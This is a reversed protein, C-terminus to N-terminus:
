RCEPPAYKAPLTGMTINTFGRDTATQASDSACAWDISAHVLPNTLNNGGAYPTWVLTRGQADSPLSPSNAIQISIAGNAPNIHTSAVYKTQKGTDPLANHSAAVSAVRNLGGSTYAEAVTAKLQSSTLMIETLKARVTYDSYAPLAIVALIGIIAVVIMLEILTFGHMLHNSLRVSPKNNMM